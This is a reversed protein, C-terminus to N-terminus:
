VMVGYVTISKNYKINLSVLLNGEYLVFRGSVRLVALCINLSLTFNYQVIVFCVSM